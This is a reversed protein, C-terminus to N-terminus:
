GTIDKLIHYVPLYPAFSFSSYMIQTCNMCLSNFSTCIIESSPFMVYVNCLLKINVIIYM